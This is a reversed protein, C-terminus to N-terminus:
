FLRYNMSSTARQRDNGAVSVVDNHIEENQLHSYKDVFDRLSITVNFKHPFVTEGAKKMQQVHHVRM